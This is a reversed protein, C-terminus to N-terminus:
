LYMVESVNGTKCLPDQHPRGPIDMDLCEPCIPIEAVSELCNNQPDEEMNPQKSYFRMDETITFGLEPFARILLTQRSGSLQYSVEVRSVILDWIEITTMANLISRVLPDSRNEPDLRVRTRNVFDAGSIKDASV